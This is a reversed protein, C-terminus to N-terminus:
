DDEHQDKWVTQETKMEQSPRLASAMSSSRCIEWRVFRNPPSTATLSTDKETRSPSIRETMPGFPAPLDVRNLSIEENRRGLAPSTRKLPARIEPSAGCTTARMPTTLVNWSVVIKLPMVTRSLTIM